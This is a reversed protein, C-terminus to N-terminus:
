FSHLQALMAVLEDSSPRDAPLESLCVIAIRIAMVMEEEDVEEGVISSDLAEKMDGSHQMHRLWRALSGRGSEGSFFLDAPDKGTLLVGLIMGFAYVDCKDTYRCLCINSDLHESVGLLQFVYPHCSFNQVM